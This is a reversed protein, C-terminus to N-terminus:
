GRPALVHARKVAHQAALYGFTIGPGITIGPAPYTGGMISNMDNGCAYLGEIEEGQANLVGAHTNTVLGTAAGIDGPYLAIAYFPGVKLAGLCPNPGTWTADGNACQYQTTGRQFDEDVGQEAFQNFREVTQQLGTGVINLTSALQELTQGLKLYGDKIFAGLGAGGPRIMGLGYRKLAPADCILWAPICPTKAHHAQMALGFLHYSTSENVFRNGQSDVTIMGPKGRDMVFHPFVATSKDKRERISVPAWFAHSLNTTGLQAGGALTLALEQAQGTHGPAGPCWKEQAGPLLSARQSPHRNFGGSAMVVGGLSKLTCQIKQGNELTQELVVGTISQGDQILQVPQTRTLVKAGLPILSYLMRAIMANGMVFRTSRAYLFKDLFHRTIIRLSYTLSRWTKTLRLLHFIDDRDVMMGGLVTFEPIPNRVLDLNPGLLKGDFPQPEIARGNLVSGELESLYDPHLERVQFQLATKSEFLAIAKPGHDIFAQRMKPDSREGVALNLFHAVREPTDSPNVKLGRETCPVWATAASLATTGGLQATREVLVVSAGELAATLAASFGAAGSGIVVLDVEEHDKLSSLSTDIKQSLPESHKEM